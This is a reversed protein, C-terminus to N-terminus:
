LVAIGALWALAGLKIWVPRFLDRYLWAEEMSGIRFGDRVDKASKRPSEELLLKGIKPSEKLALRAAAIADKERGAVHLALAYTYKMDAFDNPYREAIAIAEEAQGEEVLNAVVRSRFGHNDNPNIKEVMRRMLVYAAIREKPDSSNEDDVVKRALLRLAPRNELWTWECKLGATNNQEMVHDFLPSARALIPPIMTESIFGGYGDLACVLDDLVEFSNWLLPNDRLLDLWEGPSEWAEENRSSMHTLDPKSVPFVEQWKKLADLLRASPLFPGCSGEEPHFDYHCELPPAIKLLAEIKAIDADMGRVVELMAAGPNEAVEQLWGILDRLEPDGSKILRAAWYKARARAEEPKDAYMLLHVELMGLNPNNPDARQAEVFAKRASDDRGKGSEMLAIRQWGISRVMNEGRAIAAEALARRKRPKDLAVHCELLMDLLESENNRIVGNGKFWPELLTAVEAIKGEERWLIVLHELTSRDISSGVLSQWYKRPMASLLGDLIFAPEISFDPMLACCQKYKRLSGCHCPDNRGPEPLRIRRFGHAPQPLNNWMSKGLVRFFSTRPGADPHIQAAIHPAFGEGYQAVHAIAEEASAGRWVLGTFIRVLLRLENLIEQSGECGLDGINM